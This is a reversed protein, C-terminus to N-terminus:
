RSGVLPKLDLLMRCPWEGHRGLRELGHKAYFQAARENKADAVLVRFGFPGEAALRITRGLAEDFLWTGLGQGQIRQDVALRALLVAPIPFRPLKNLPGETVLDREVIAAALTFYGALRETNNRDVALWTRGLLDREQHRLAWRRIYLDLSPEGSTFGKLLARHARTLQEVSLTM